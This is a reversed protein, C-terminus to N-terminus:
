IVYRWLVLASTFIDLAADLSTALAATSDTLYSFVLGLVFVM